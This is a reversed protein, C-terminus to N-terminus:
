RAAVIVATADDHRKGRWRDPKPDSVESARVARILSDAGGRDFATFVGSWTWGYRETLRSVGDSCLLVRQVSASPICGTLAHDAAGPVAGIVWFGGPQNRVTRVYEPSYTKVATSTIPANPLRDVRDDIIATYQKEPSEIVAACDAVVLWEIHTGTHRVVAGAAGPSLPDSLDCSPGHDEMTAVIGDRVITQLTETPHSSLGKGINEALREVVWSVAHICGGSEGPYRGAGDLVLAWDDGALWLDENVGGPAAETVADTVRM